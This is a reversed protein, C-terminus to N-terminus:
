APWEGDSRLQPRKGYIRNVNLKSRRNVVKNRQERSNWVIITNQDTIELRAPDGNAARIAEALVTKNVVMTQVTDSKTITRRPIRVMADGHVAFM